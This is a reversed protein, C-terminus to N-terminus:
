KGIGAKKMAERAKVDMDGSTNLIAQAVAGQLGIIGPMVWDGDPEGEPKPKWWVQVMFEGHGRGEKWARVYIGDKMEDHLYKRKKDAM